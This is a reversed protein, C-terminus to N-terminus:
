STAGKLTVDCADIGEGVMIIDSKVALDPPESARAGSGTARSSSAEVELPAVNRPSWFKSCFAPTAFAEQSLSSHKQSSPISRRWRTSATVFVTSGNLKRSFQPRLCQV